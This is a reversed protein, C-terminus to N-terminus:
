QWWWNDNKPDAAEVKKQEAEPLNVFFDVGVKKELDDISMVMDKSLTEEGQGVNEFFVALGKYEGQKTLALVAKYIGTPVTVTKGKVDKVKHTSNDLVTGTVVYLTDSQASWRSHIRKEVDSWIGSNIKYSQPMINTALFVDYNTRGSRDNSPVMHGRIYEEGPLDDFTRNQYSSTLSAQYEFGILPDYAYTEHRGTGGQGNVYPYCTWRSVRDSLSFYASFNRAGKADTHCVFVNGDESDTTAPLELWKAKASKATFGPYSTGAKHSEYYANGTEDTSKYVKRNAVLTVIDGVKLGLKGFDSTSGGKQPALGYVYLVGTDDMIYFDGYEYETFSIIEGTLRYWDKDSQKESLFQSITVTKIGDPSIGTAQKVSLTASVQELLLSFTVKGSREEGTNAGVTIQVTANGEGRSPSVNIWPVDSESKWSKNSKIEVSFPPTNSEVNQSTPSVTLTGKETDSGGTEPKSCAAVTMLAALFINLM